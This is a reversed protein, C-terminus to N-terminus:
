FFFVVKEYFFEWVGYFLAYGLRRDGCRVKARVETGSLMLERPLRSKPDIDDGDIRAYALVTAEQENQDDRTPNAEGAIRERSLKGKFTRTPDSRLLFDVDLVAPKGERELSELAILVQGIHKHPIKLEIEWPGDKAGVRLLPESPKAERGTWEEIFNGNLVTWERGRRPLLTAEEPTFRPAKLAFYGERDLDTRRVLDEIERVKSAQLDRRTAAETRYKLKDALPLDPQKARTEYEAAENGAANAETILQNIKNRLERDYMRALVRNESVTEGPQVTFHDVIGNAPSFVARRVHPMLQGSADMKLPYPVFYMASALFSVAVVVLASIARAKGGLGEQVRALPLWVWRMPIRRHEIANDLASTSHRAVVELRALLQQPEVPPEFCEMVLASRPPKRVKGKKKDEEPQEERLPQIVLLKSGSEALYADLADLVKPPLSDDKTGTFVLKEGWDLVHDCLIRMLRIL